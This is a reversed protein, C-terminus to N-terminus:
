TVPAPLPEGGFHATLNALVLESMAWRAEVTATAVHPTLVVNQMGLLAEPVRPEGALTDLAAGGLRGEGLATLLAAEDVLSGQAVNVLIGRPGLADIVNAGVIRETSRSAPASLILVDSAVALAEVTPYWSYPVDQRQLDTYGIAAGFGELRRAVARGIRGLGFIGFRQSSVKVGLPVETQPWLGSRVLRDLQPIRRLLAIVLGITLDAVDDSAVAPTHTVRVGRRRAYDLDVRDYGAGHLAILELAPLRSILENSVGLRSSSVVARIAAAHAAIAAECEAATLGRRVTFRAQLARDFADMLAHLQLVEISM